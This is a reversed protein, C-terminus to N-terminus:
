SIINSDNGDGTDVLKLDGSVIFQEETKYVNLTGGFKELRERMSTLGFGERFEARDTIPNSIEFRFISGGPAEFLIMAERAQSHKMSNTLAEQVSRYIVFSQEGSLPASFAGHKVSFHVRFFSEMELKRILRLIGPLGGAERMKLSKVAMRTEELSESALEKLAQVREIDQDPTQLRFVELQMLLATLKHGVSDHIEHAILMREEQRTLEEESVKRRNAERYEHLLADYRADLDDARNKLKKYFLLGILLIMLYLFIYMQVFISLNTNVITLIMGIAMIGGLILSDNLSLRYFGESILLSLILLLFPNFDGNHYPFLTYIALIAEFCFLALLASPRRNALPTLFFLVFYMAVGLLRGAALGETQYFFVFAISWIGINLLLWTLYLKVIASGEM